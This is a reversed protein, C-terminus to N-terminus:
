IWSGRFPACCGGGWKEAMTALRHGHWSGSLLQKVESRRSRFSNIKPRRVESERDSGIVLSVEGSSENRRFTLEGYAGKTRPFSLDQTRLRYNWLPRPRRWLNERRRCRGSVSWFFGYAMFHYHENIITLGYDHPSLPTLCRRVYNETSNLIIVVM